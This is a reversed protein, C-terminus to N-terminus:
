QDCTVPQLRALVDKWPALPEQLRRVPMVESDRSFRFYTVGDPGPSGLWARRIRWSRAIFSDADHHRNGERQPGTGHRCNFRPAPM